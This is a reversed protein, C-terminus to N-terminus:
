WRWALAIWGIRFWWALWSYKPPRNIVLRATFPNWSTTITLRLFRRSGVTFWFSM